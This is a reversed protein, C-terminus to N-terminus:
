GGLEALRDALASFTRPLSQVCLSLADSIWFTDTDVTAFDGGVLVDSSPHTGTLFQALACSLNSSYRYEEGEPKSRCFGEFERIDIQHTTM